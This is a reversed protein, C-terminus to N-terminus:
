FPLFSIISVTDGIGRSGHRDGAGCHNRCRRRAFHHDDEARFSHNEEDSYASAMLKNDGGVFYLEKGDRRWTANQGGNVSVQSRRGPMPFAQVYIEYRGSEDSNYSLWKGNPTSSGAVGGDVLTLAASLM